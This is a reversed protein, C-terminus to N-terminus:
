NYRRECEEQALNIIRELEPKCADCFSELDFGKHEEDGTAKFTRLRCSDCMVEYMKTQLKRGKKTFAFFRMIKNHVPKKVYKDVKKKVFEQKDNM